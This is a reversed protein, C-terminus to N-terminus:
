AKPTPREGALSSSRRSVGRAGSALLALSRGRAAAKDGASM